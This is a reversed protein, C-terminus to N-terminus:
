SACAASCATSTPSSGRSSSVIVSCRRTGRSTAAPRSRAGGTVLVGHVTDDAAVADLAADLARLMPWDIANLQDPRNLTITVAVRDPEDVPTRTILVAEPEHGTM